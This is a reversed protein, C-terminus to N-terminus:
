FLSKGAADKIKAKWEAQIQKVVSDPMPVYYLEDAMKAGNKYAWDFFKLVERGNDPKDQKAHMLIFSAGTIPWADKGVQDTLIVGMGPTKAWDANAAAAKFSDDGPLVFQGDKNKMFGYDLKNQKAYAYEVYGISGTIKQVYSAVGENGKGGVGTTWKVATGEGIASKFEPSVKALYNTFLFTTGSGDSRYVVTIDDNGLKISPNLVAIAPDNWKKIKGLYIQAVIEGTLKLERQKVEKLNFVPVVGGMIAPFQVLGQKDLDEGKLPADSAGFDVTKATIQKIGGGSGISQYNLGTGTAKKYADAWKAYIPYPFTAGAGTIDAALTSGAVLAAALASTLSLTIRM